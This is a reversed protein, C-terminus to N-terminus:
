GRRVHIRRASFLYPKFGLTRITQVRAWRAFTDKMTGTTISFGCHSCKLRWGKTRVNKVLRDNVLSLTYNVRSHIWGGCSCPILGESKVSGEQSDSPSSRVRVAQTHCEQKRWEMGCFGNVKYQRDCLVPLAQM